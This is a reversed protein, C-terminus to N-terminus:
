VDDAIEMAREQEGTLAGENYVDILEVNHIIIEGAVLGRPIGLMKRMDEFKTRGGIHVNTNGGTFGTRTVTYTVRYVLINTM